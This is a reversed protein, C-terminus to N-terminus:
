LDIDISSSSAEAKTILLQLTCVSEAGDPSLIASWHAGTRIATVTVGLKQISSINQTM